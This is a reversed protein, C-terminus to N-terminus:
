AQFVAHSFDEVLIFRQPPSREGKQRLLLVQDRRGGFIGSDVGGQEIAKTDPRAIAYVGLDVFERVSAGADANENGDVHMVINVRIQGAQLVGLNIEGSEMQNPALGFRSLTTM